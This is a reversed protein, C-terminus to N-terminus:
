FTLHPKCGSLESTRNVCVLRHRSVVVEPALPDEKGGSAGVCLWSAQSLEKLLYILNKAQTPHM